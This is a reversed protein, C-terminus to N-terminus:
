GKKESPPPTGGAPPTQQPNAGGQGGQGPPPGNPRAPRPRNAMLSIEVHAVGHHCTYCNVSSEMTAGLTDKKAKFFKKNIKATMEYMHRAMTKEPKEDSAKDQAHCFNCRVGLASSWEDMLHDVQRYTMGKPLVKINKLTPEPRQQQPQQQFATMSALLVVGSILGVAAVIRKNLQM